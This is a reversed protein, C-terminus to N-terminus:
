EIVIRTRYVSDGSVELLYIGSGIGTRDFEFSSGTTAASRYVLRGTLEYLSVTFWKNGPNHFNLRSVTHVPNPHISLPVDAGADPTNVGIVSAINSYSYYRTGSAESDAGALIGKLRYYVTGEPPNTDSFNNIHGPVWNFPKMNKQTTGRLIEYTEVEAGALLGELESLKSEVFSADSVLRGADHVHHDV